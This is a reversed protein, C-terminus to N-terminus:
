EIPWGDAGYTPKPQYTKGTERATKEDHCPKCIARLNDDANTRGDSWHLLKAQAKSVIHDVAVAVTVRGAERCPQCLGCDRQMVRKRV